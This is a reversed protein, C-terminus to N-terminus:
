ILAASPAPKGLYNGQIYDCGNKALYELQEANEIGEAIVKLDLQHAMDIITKVLNKKEPITGIPDIFSKDIKVIDLPLTRLYNLSSYRTGFDDLALKIGMNKLSSLVQKATDSSSMFVSETIEFELYDTDFQTDRIVSKVMNIFEPDRIQMVSINISLVPHVEYSDYIKMYQECARRLVFEGIAIIAGNEEALPIFKGPGVEGLDPSEWRVLAEYGRLKREPIKYQPQYEVYLQNKEIAELLKHEMDIRQDLNIQMEEDFFMYQNKGHAKARYLALEMQRMLELTSISDKPYHAIGFSATCIYDMNKYRFPIVLVDRIKQIFEEVERNNRVDELIFLFEDGGFRGLSEAPTLIKKINHIIELLYVDGIQHSLSDNIEKFGDLDMLVLTFAAKRDLGSILEEMKAIRSKRNPLGTLEDTFVNTQLLSLNKQLQRKQVSLITCLLVTVVCIVITSLHLFFEHHVIMSCVFGISVANLVLQVYYGSKVNILTLEVCILLQIIGIITCFLSLGNISFNGKLVIYPTFFHLCIMVGYLFVFLFILVLDRSKQNSVDSM